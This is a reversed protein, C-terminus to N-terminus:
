SVISGTMDSAGAITELMIKRRSEEHRVEEFVERTLSLPKLGLIRRRVDNLDSNLRALFEFVGKNELRKKFRSNDGACGWAEKTM